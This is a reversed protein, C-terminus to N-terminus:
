FSSNKIKLSFDFLFSWEDVLVSNRTESQIESEYNDPGLIVLEVGARDLTQREVPSPQIDDGTTFIM